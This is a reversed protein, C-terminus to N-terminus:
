NSHNLSLSKNSSRALDITVLILDCFLTLRVFVGIKKILSNSSIGLNM